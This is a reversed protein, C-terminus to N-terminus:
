SINKWPYLLVVNQNNKNTKLNIEKIRQRWMKHFLRETAHRHSCCSCLPVSAQERCLRNTYFTSRLHWKVFVLKLQETIQAVHGFLLCTHSSRVTLKATLPPFFVVCLKFLKIMICHNHDSSTHTKSRLWPSFTRRAFFFFFNTLNSLLAVKRRMQLMLVSFRSM